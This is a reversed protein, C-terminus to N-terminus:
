LRRKFPLKSINPMSMCFSQYSSRSKDTGILASTRLYQNLQHSLLLALPSNVGTCFTVTPAYTNAIGLTDILLHRDFDVPREYHLSLDRGTGMIHFRGIIHNKCAEFATTALAVGMYYLIGDNQTTCLIISPSVDNM